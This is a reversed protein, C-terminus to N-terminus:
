SAIAERPDLSRLLNSVLSILETLEFKAVTRMVLRRM